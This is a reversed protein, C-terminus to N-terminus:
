IDTDGLIVQRLRTRPPEFLPHSRDSFEPSYLGAQEQITSILDFSRPSHSQHEFAWIQPLLGLKGSYLLERWISGGLTSDDPLLELLSTRARDTGIKTLAAVCHQDVERDTPNGTQILQLLIPIARDTGVEGLARINKHIAGIKKEIAEILSQEATELFKTTVARNQRFEEFITSRTELRDTNFFELILTSILELNDALELITSFIAVSGLEVISQVATKRIGSDKDHILEALIPAISDDGIMGIGIVAYDRVHGWSSQLYTLLIPLDSPKLLENISYRLTAINDNGADGLLQLILDREDPETVLLQSFVRERIEWNPHTTLKVIIPKTVFIAYDILEPTIDARDCRRVIWRISDTINLQVDLNPDDIVNLLISLNCDLYQNNWDSLAIVALKRTAPDYNKLDNELVTFARSYDLRFLAKVINDFPCPYDYTRTWYMAQHLWDFVKDGGICELASIAECCLYVAENAHHEESAPYEISRHIYLNPEYLLYILHEIMTPEAVIGLGQIWDTNSWRCKCTHLAERIKDIAAETGIKGLAQMAHYQARFNIRDQSKLLSGLAEVAEVPALDVMIEAAQHYFRSNYLEEILLAVALDRDLDIIAAIASEIARHGDCNNPQRHKFIFIDQLYPLTAKSKTRRWLEIKLTTPIELSDIGDVIIQQFEPDISGTLSAGLYLDVELALNVIRLALDRDTIQALLSAIEPTRDLHNLYNSQLERDTLQSLLSITLPPYITM